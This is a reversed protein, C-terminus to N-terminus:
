NKSKELFNRFRFATSMKVLLIAYISEYTIFVFHGWHFLGESHHVGPFLPRTSIFNEESFPWLLPMGSGGATFFDLFLHSAYIIATLLFLKEWPPSYLAKALATVLLSFCVGFVLSHTFGRHADVGSILHPIFDLDAVNAIFVTWGLLMRRSLGTQLARDCALFQKSIVYGTISHAIPSPM